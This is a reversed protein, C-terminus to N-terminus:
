TDRLRGYLDREGIYGAVSEPVFQEIPLGEVCRERVESSSIDIQRRHIMRVRVYHPLEESPVSLGPRRMVLFTVLRALEDIDRWQELQAYQDSGLIWCPKARPYTEMFRRVTDISYSTGGARLEWDLVSFRDEGRLALRLMAERDDASATAHNKKLPSKAAPIFCVHELGGQELADRAMLLHGIHPPDFSGGFLGVPGAGGFEAKETEAM